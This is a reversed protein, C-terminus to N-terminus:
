AGGATLVTELNQRHVAEYPEFYQLSGSALSDAILERL